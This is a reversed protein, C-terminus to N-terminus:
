INILNSFYIFLHGFLRGNNETKRKKDTKLHALTKSEVFVILQVSLYEWTKKM